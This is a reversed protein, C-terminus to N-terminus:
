RYSSNGFRDLKYGFLMYIVERLEQSVVNYLEENEKYKSQLTQYQEKLNQLEKINITMNMTENLRATMEDHGSELKKNRIKLREIEARLKTVDNAAQEQALATPNNKFHVVKLSEDDGLVNQRLTFNEIEIELENKRKKLKENEARLSDLDRRLSEYQDPNIVGDPNGPHGRMEAVESELKACLDKYGNVTKELMEVRIRSQQLETNIM